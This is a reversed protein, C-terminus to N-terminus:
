RLESVFVSSGSVLVAFLLTLSSGLSIFGADVAGPNGHASGVDAFWYSAFCAFILDFGGLAIRTGLLRSSRSAVLQGAAAACIFASVLLLEGGEVLSPYTLSNGRTLTSVAGFGIPLLAFLVGFLVWLLMKARVSERSVRAGPIALAPNDTDIAAPNFDQRPGFRANRNSKAAVSQEPIPGATGVPRPDRDGSELSRQDPPM